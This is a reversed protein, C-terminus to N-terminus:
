RRAALRAIRSVGQEFDGEPTILSIVAYPESPMDFFYGPQVIVNETELLQRIWFEESWNSPLRLIASWGGDAHLAHVSKDALVTRLTSLNADIRSKLNRRNEAGIELLEHLVAQVPTSVSLYTDLVLELRDRAAQRERAPGSIVIWGLKMQPMAAMKSLGNLSFALTSDQGALTVVSDTDSGFRYDAFVEDSIIAVGHERAIDSLPGAELTKLLSGTPNNPNVVVIARSRASLHQRLYAFDISWAGDYVLPYPVTRVCDLAALYEFLPYSPVPVLVEDDPDCLLKFLCAYAESSSATLAIQDVSLHVGLDRYLGAIENRAEELGFPQPHYGLDQISAYTKAIQSHPYRPLVETPNSVTLDLLPAGTRHKEQISRTLLNPSFSSPLRRSYLCLFVGKRGGAKACLLSSDRSSYLVPSACRRGIAIRRSRCRFAWNWCRGCEGFM